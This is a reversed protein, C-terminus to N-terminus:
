LPNRWLDLRVTEAREKAGVVEITGRGGVDLANARVENVVTLHLNAHLSADFAGDNEIGSDGKKLTEERGVGFVFDKQSILGSDDGREAAIM